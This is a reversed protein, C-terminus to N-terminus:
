MRMLLTPETRLKCENETCGNDSFFSFCNPEKEKNHQELANDILDNMEWLTSSMGYQGRLQRIIWLNSRLQRIYKVGACEEESSDGNLDNRLQLLRSEFYPQNQNVRIFRKVCELALNKKSKLCLRHDEGIDRLITKFDQYHMKASIGELYPNKFRYRKLTPGIGSERYATTKDAGNILLHKMIFRADKQMDKVDDEPSDVRALAVDLPTQGAKNKINIFQGFMALTEEYRYQGLKIATHLPTDGEEFGGEPKCLEQYQGLSQQVQQAFNGTNLHPPLVENLLNLTDDESLTSVYDRFETISFLAARLRALRATTAQSILAINARESANQADACKKLTQEILERPILIHKLFSKWKAKNFELNNELRAFAEIEAYNHYEKNDFPNSFYGFKTPWYSNSSHKLNVLSILDEATIDFAHAGHFFHFPRRTHFGMISDVYMLDHDIKFFVAHPKGDKEVLYFGYNGKHLDDEELTFSTTLISALSEYDITLHGDVEAQVLRAYFGQPLKDLFYYPIKTAETAKVATYDCSSQPEDLRYFNKHLGERKEIVYCLHQVALGTINSDDDVVLRLSPTFNHLLFLQSLQSFRVEFRSFIPCGYKNKKYIINFPESAEDPPNYIARLFAEHGSARSAPGLTIDNIHYLAVM